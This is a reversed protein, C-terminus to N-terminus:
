GFDRIRKIISRPVKLAKGIASVSQGQSLLERIQREKGNESSLDPTGSGASWHLKYAYRLAASVEAGNLEARDLVWHSGADTVEATMRDGAQVLRKQDDSLSRASGTGAKLYTETTATLTRRDAM